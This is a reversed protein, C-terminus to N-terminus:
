VSKTNLLNLQQSNYVYIRWWLEDQRVNLFFGSSGNDGFMSSFIKDKVDQELSFSIRYLIRVRQILSGCELGEGPAFATKIRIRTQPRNGTASDKALQPQQKAM